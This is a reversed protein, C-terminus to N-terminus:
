SNRNPVPANGGPQGNSINVDTATVTNGQRQGIAVVFDGAKLDSPTGNTEESIRGNAALQVQVSSGSSTKITVTNGSVSAVTGSVASGANATPRGNPGPGGGRAGRGPGAQGAGPNGFPQTTGLQIQRAQLIGNSQQGFARIAQGPKVDGITGDVQKHVTTSSTLQVTVTQSNQPSKLTLTTGNITAVTGIANNGSGFGNGRPRPTGSVAQLGNSTTQAANSGTSAAPAAAATPAPAAQSGASCAVLSAALAATLFGLSVKRLM